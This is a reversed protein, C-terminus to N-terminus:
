SVMLLLQLLARFCGKRPWPQLSAESRYPELKKPLDGLYKKLPGAKGDFNIFLFGGTTRSIKRARQVLHLLGPEIVVHRLAAIALAPHDHRHRRQELVLRFRGIGVDVGVDGVDATAAGELLHARRDVGSRRARSLSAAM